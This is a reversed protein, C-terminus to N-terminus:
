TRTGGIRVRTSEGTGQLGVVAQGSSGADWKRHFIGGVDDDHAGTDSAEGSGFHQAVSAQLYDNKFRSAADAPTDKRFKIRFRAKGDFQAGLENVSRRAIEEM